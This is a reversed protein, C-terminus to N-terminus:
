FIDIGKEATRIADRQKSRVAFTRNILNPNLPAGILSWRNRLQKTHHGCAVLEVRQSAVVCSAARRLLADVTRPVFAQGEGMQDSAKGGLRDDIEALIPRQKVFTDMMGSVETIEGMLYRAMDISHAILDGHAGSGAIDGQLRWVIPFNPDVIWDQLYVSRWHYIRGLDGNEIMKKALAVAPVGRYNFCVANPVNNEAVADQMAGAKAVTSALPKECFVMKGAKAAEIAIEVHSDGPTVIDVLDIDDRAIVKRWDTEYEAFGFKEAAAKVKDETRGCLVQLVPEIGIEPFFKTLQRYANSHAKGMFQYGILAIRIQKTASM